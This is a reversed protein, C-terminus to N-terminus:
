SCSDWAAAMVPSLILRKHWQHEHIYFFHYANETKTVLFLRMSRCFFCVWRLTKRQLTRPARPLPFLPNRWAKRPFFRWTFDTGKLSVETHNHVQHTASRGIEKVDVGSAAAFELLGCTKIRWWCSKRKRDPSTGAPLSWCGSRLLVDTQDLTNIGGDEEEGGGGRQVGAGHSSALNQIGRRPRGRRHRPTDPTHCWCDVSKQISHWLKCPIDCVPLQPLPSPPLCSNELLWVPKIQIHNAAISGPCCSVMHPSQLWILSARLVAASYGEAAPIRDCVCAGGVEAM